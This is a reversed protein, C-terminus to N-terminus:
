LMFRAILMRPTPPNICAIRAYSLSCLGDQRGQWVEFEANKCLRSGLASM